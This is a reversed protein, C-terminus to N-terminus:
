MAFKSCRSECPMLRLPSALQPAASYPVWGAWALHRRGHPAWSAFSGRPRAIEHRHLTPSRALDEQMLAAGHAETKCEADPSPRERRAPKAPVVVKVLM